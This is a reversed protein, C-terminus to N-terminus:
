WNTKFEIVCKNHIQETTAV